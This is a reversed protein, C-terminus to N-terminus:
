LAIYSRSNPHLSVDVVADVLFCSSVAELSSRSNASANDVCLALDVMFVLWFVVRM